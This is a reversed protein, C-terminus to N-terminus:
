CWGFLDYLPLIGKVDFKFRQFLETFIQVQDFGPVLVVAEARDFKLDRPIRWEREHVWYADGELYVYMGPDVGSPLQEGFVVPLVGLKRLYDKDFMLGYPSWTLVKRNKRIVAERGLLTDKLATLPKDTFCVAPARMGAGASARLTQEELMLWLVEPASFHKDHTVDNINSFAFDLDRARTLHTLFKSCDSRYYEIEQPAKMPALKTVEVPLVPTTRTITITELTVNEMWHNFAYGCNSCTINGPMELLSDWHGDALIKDLLAYCKNVGPPQRKAVKLLAIYLLSNTNSYLESGDEDDM